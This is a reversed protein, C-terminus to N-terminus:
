SAVHEDRKSDAEDDQRDGEDDTKKEESSRNEIQNTFLYEGRRQSVFLVM